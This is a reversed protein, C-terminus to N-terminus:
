NLQYRNLKQAITTHSVGLQTALKRTSPYKQYWHSLFRKEFEAVADPLSSGHLDADLEIMQSLAMDEPGIRDNNANIATKFIANQLQTLNGPWRYSKILEQAAPTFALNPKNLWLTYQELYHRAMAEIDDRRNRLPPITLKLVDVYHLLEPLVMNEGHEESAISAILRPKQENHQLWRYLKEQIARDLCDLGAIAITGQQSAQLIGNAAGQSDGQFLIQHQDIIRMGDCEMLNFPGANYASAQHCLHMLSRIGTGAEGVILLPADVIALSQARSKLQRMMESREFLIADYQQHKASLEAGGPLQEVPIFVLLALESADSPQQVQLLASGATTEIVVAKEVNAAQDMRKYWDEQVFLQKIKNGKACDDAFTQRAAQNNAIIKAQRDIIVVPVPLLEVIQEAQQRSQQEPLVDIQEVWHVGDIRMLKSALRGQTFKDAAEVQLYLITDAHDM